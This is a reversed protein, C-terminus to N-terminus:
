NWRARRQLWVAGITTLLIQVTVPAIVLGWLLSLAGTGYIAIALVEDNAPCRRGLLVLVGALNLLLLWTM